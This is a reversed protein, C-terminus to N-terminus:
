FFIVKKEVPEKLADDACCARMGTQRIKKKLQKRMPAKPPADAVSPLDPARTQM